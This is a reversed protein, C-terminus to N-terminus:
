LPQLLVITRCHKNSTLARSDSEFEVNHSASGLANSRFSSPMKINRKGGWDIVVRGTERQENALFTLITAQMMESKRAYDQVCGKANSLLEEDM